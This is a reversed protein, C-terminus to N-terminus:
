SCSSVYGRLWYIQFLNINLPCKPDLLLLLRDGSFTQRPVTQYLTSVESTACLERFDVRLQERLRDCCLGLISDVNRHMHYANNVTAFISATIFRALHFQTLDHPEKDNCLLWGHEDRHKGLNKMLPSTQNRRGGFCDICVALGCKPCVYHANFITTQCTDCLERIGKVPKKWTVAIVEEAESFQKTAMREENFMRCFQQGVFTMLHKASLKDLTPPYAIPLWIKNDDYTAKSEEAFGHVSLIDGRKILTRYQFFRCTQTNGTRKDNSCDRCCNLESSPFEKTFDNCSRNQIFPVGEKIPQFKRTVFDLFSKQEILQKIVLPRTRTRKIKVNLLKNTRRRRVTEVKPQQGNPLDALSKKLVKDVKKRAMKQTDSIPKRAGLTKLYPNFHTTTVPVPEITPLSNPLELEQTPYCPTQSTGPEIPYLADDLYKKYTTVVSEITEVISSSTSYTKVKKNAKDEENMSRRREPKPGNPTDEARLETMSKDKVEQPLDATSKVEENENRPSSVEEKAATLSTKVSPDLGEALKDNTANGNTGMWENLWDAATDEAKPEHSDRRHGVPIVGLVIDTRTGNMTRQQPRLETVPM